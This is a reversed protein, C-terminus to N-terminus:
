ADEDQRAVSTADNDVILIFGTRDPKGELQAGIFAIELCYGNARAYSQLTRLSPSQRGSELRAIATQTTGMAAAIEAQTRRSRTRLQTLAAAVSAIEARYDGSQKPM